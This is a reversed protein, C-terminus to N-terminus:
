TIRVYADEPVDEVEPTEPETFVWLLHEDRPKWMGQTVDGLEGKSYAGSITATSSYTYGVSGIACTGARGTLAINALVQLVGV